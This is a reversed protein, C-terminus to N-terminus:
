YIGSKNRLTRSAQFGLPLLLNLMWHSGAEQMCCTRTVDECPSLILLSGQAEKGNM